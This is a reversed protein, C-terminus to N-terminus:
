VPEKNECHEFYVRRLADGLTYTPDSGRLIRHITSQRAKVGRAECMDAIQQQTFGKDILRQAMTKTNLSTDGTDHSAVPANHAIFYNNCVGQSWIRQRM